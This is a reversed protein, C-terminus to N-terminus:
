ALVMGGPPGVRDAGCHTTSSGSPFFRRAGMAIRSPQKRSSSEEFRPPIQLRSRPMRTRPLALASGIRQGRAPSGPSRWSSGACGSNASCPFCTSGYAPRSQPPAGCGGQARCPVPVSTAQEERCLVQGGPLQSVEANARSATYRIQAQKFPRVQGRKDRGTREQGSRPIPAVQLSPAYKPTRCAWAAVPM